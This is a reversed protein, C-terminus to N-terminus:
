NKFLTLNQAIAKQREAPDKIAMIQEETMSRSTSGVRVYCGQASRGYRKIYYLDEGKRVKIEVVHKQEVFKTGLEVFQRPDPLIQNELIDAIKKLTEDLEEVGRVSGDDNVGIYLTGGDTNLFAVIEKPISEAYKQKLETKETEAFTSM